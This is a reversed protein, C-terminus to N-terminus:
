RSSSRWLSSGDKTKERCFDLIDQRITLNELVKETAMPPIVFLIYGEDLGEMRVPSYLVAFEDNWKWHSRFPGARCLGPKKM